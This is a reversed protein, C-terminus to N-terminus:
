RRRGKDKRVKMQVIQRDNELKRKTRKKTSRRLRVREMEALRERSLEVARELQDESLMSIHTADLEIDLVTSLWRYAKDRNMYASRVGPVPRWLQDFVDHLHQRKLRVAPSAMRGQPFETGDHCTVAAKCDQCDWIMLDRRKNHPKLVVNLSACVDCFQPPPLHATEM